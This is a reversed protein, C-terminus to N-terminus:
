ALELDFYLVPMELNSNRVAVPCRYMKKLDERYSDLVEWLVMHDAATIEGAQVATVYDYLNRLVVGPKRAYVRKKRFDAKKHRQGDNESCDTKIVFPKAKREPLSIHPWKVAVSYDWRQQANVARGLIDDKIQLHNSDSRLPTQQLKLFQDIYGRRHVLTDIIERDWLKHNVEGVLDKGKKDSEMIQLADDLISVLERELRKPDFAVVARGKSDQRVIPVSSVQRQFLSWLCRDANTQVNEPIPTLLVNLMIVEQKDARKHAPRSKSKILSRTTEEVLDVGSYEDSDDDIQQKTQHHNRTATERKPSRPAKNRTGTQKLQEYVPPDFSDFDEELQENIL